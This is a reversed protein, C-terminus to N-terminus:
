QENNKFKAVINKYKIYIYNKGKIRVKNDSYKKYIVNDNESIEKIKKKDGISLVKGLQNSKKIKLILNTKKKLKIKKLIIWNNLATIKM